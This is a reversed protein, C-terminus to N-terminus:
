GRKVEDFLVVLLMDNKHNAMNANINGTNIPFNSANAERLRHLELPIGILLLHDGIIESYDSEMM